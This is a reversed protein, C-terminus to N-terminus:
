SYYGIHYNQAPLVDNNIEEFISNSGFLMDNQYFKVELDAVDSLCRVNYNLNQQEYLVQLPSFANFCFIKSDPWLRKARRQWHLTAAGIDYIIQPNIKFKNCLVNLFFVHDRPLLGQNFVHFINDM